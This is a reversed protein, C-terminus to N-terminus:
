VSTRLGDEALDFRVKERNALVESGVHTLLTRAAAFRARERELRSHALHFEFREEFFV